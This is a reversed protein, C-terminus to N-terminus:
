ITDKYNRKQFGNSRSDLSRRHLPFYESCKRLAGSNVVALRFNRTSWMSKSFFLITGWVLFCTLSTSHAINTENSLSLSDKTIETDRSARICKSNRSLGKNSDDRLSFSRTREYSKISLTRPHWQVEFGKLKLNFCTTVTELVNGKINTRLTQHYDFCSLITKM